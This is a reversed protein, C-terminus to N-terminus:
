EGRIAVTLREVVNGSGGVTTYKPAIGSHTWNVAANVRLAEARWELSEAIAADSMGAASAAALLADLRDRFEERPFPTTKNSTKGFM